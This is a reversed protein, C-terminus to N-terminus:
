YFFGTSLYQKFPMCDQSLDQNPDPDFTAFTDPDFLFNRIDLDLTLVWNDSEFTLVRIDLVFTLIWIDSDFSLIRIDPDTCTNVSTKIPPRRDQNLDEIRFLLLFGSIRIM